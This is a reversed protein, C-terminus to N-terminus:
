CLAKAIALTEGRTSTRKKCQPAAPQRPPFIFAHPPM